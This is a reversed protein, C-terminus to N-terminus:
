LRLMNNNMYKILESTHTLNQSLCIDNKYGSRVYKRKESNLLISYAFIQMAGLVMVIVISDM